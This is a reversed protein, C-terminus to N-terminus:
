GTRFGDIEIQYALRPYDSWQPHGPWLLEVEVNNDRVTISYLEQQRPALRRGKGNLVDGTHSHFLAERRANAFSPDV